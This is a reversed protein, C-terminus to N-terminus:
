SHFNLGARVCSPARGGDDHALDMQAFDVLLAREALEGAEHSQDLAARHDPDGGDRV